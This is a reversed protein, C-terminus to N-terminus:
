LFILQSLACYEEGQTTNYDSMRTCFEDQSSVFSDGGLFPIHCGHSHAFLEHFRRSVQVDMNFESRSNCDKFNRGFRKLITDTPAPLHMSKTLDLIDSYNVLDSKIKGLFTVGGHRSEIDIYKLGPFERSNYFWGPSYPYIRWSRWAPNKRLHFRSM